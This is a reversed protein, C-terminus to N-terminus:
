VYIIANQSWKFLLNLAYDFDYEPSENLKIALELVEKDEKKLHKILEQKTTFFTGTSIFCINQLIFFVAKYTIPLRSRNTEFDAHLYSHCLEHFLNNLSLKIYKKEDDLAYSPVYNVLTGYLDKTTHILQCVELPNWNAMESKRCIFGCSKEYDGVVLLAKEYCNLDQITMNDIIVMIDIDSKENAEKRLYSGQLGVYLLREGFSDTLITILDETYKEINIM